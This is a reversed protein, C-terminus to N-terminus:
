DEAETASKGGWARMHTRPDSSLDEAVVALTRLHQTLEGAGSVSEKPEHAHNVKM